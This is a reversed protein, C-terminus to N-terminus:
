SEISYISYTNSHSNSIDIKYEYEIINTNTDLNSIFTTFLSMQIRIRIRDSDMGLTSKCPLWNASNKKYTVFKSVHDQDSGKIVKCWIYLALMLLSIYYDSMFVHTQCHTRLLLSTDASRCDHMYIYDSATSLKFLLFWQRDEVQVFTDDPDWVWSKLIQTWLSARNQWRLRLSM